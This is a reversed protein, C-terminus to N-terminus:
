CEDVCAPLEFTRSRKWESINVIQPFVCDFSNTHRQTYTLKAFFFAFSLSIVLLSAAMLRCVASVIDARQPPLQPLLPRPTETAIFTSMTLYVYVYM